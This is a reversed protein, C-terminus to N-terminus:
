WWNIVCVAKKEPSKQSTQQANDLALIEENQTGPQVNIPWDSGWEELSRGM